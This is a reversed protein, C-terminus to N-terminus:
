AGEPAKGNQFKYIKIIQNMAFVKSREGLNKRNIKELVMYMEKYSLKRGIVFCAFKYLGNNKELKEIKENLWKLEEM